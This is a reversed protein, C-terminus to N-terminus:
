ENPNKTQRPLNIKQGPSLSSANLGPNMQIVLDQFSQKVGVFQGKSSLKERLSNVLGDFTDGSKVTYVFPTGVTIPQPNPNMITKVGKGVTQVVGKGFDMVKDLPSKQQAIKVFISDLKNAEVTFGKNELSSIVRDIQALVTKM